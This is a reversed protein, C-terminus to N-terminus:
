ESLLLSEFFAAGHALVAEDFDFDAAHLPPTDGVGLFCFVGPLRQQYFSFDEATLEPTPLLRVADEGLRDRITRVLAADNCVPPYGRSLHLAVTCGTEAEVAGAIEEMRRRLLHFTEMSFVRLTGEIVTRASLANRVTGSTMHGFRLVRLEEPPLDEAAMAYIRRVVETGAWLADAGQAAKTIHVSRGTIEISVESNKAMLPGPRTWLTGAPLGPWLHLGFIRAAHYRELVGSECIAEAGGTTEEAPQFILLVNWPLDEREEVRRALELLMTTHGDHGCAHMRGPHLSRYPATGAEEIPLADMDARFATTEERGRHFYACLGGECPITLECHLGELVGQVYRLTEPLERDLEPIRHLARRDERLRNEM